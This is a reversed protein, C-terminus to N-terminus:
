PVEEVKIKQVETGDSWSGMEIERSSGVVQEMPEGSWAAECLRDFLRWFGLWDMADVEGHRMGTLKTVLDRRRENTETLPTGIEPHPSLPAAHDAILPTEGHEDTRMVVFRKRAPPVKELARYIDRGQRTDEFQDRDGEIILVMTTGPVQGLAELPMKEKGFWGPEVPMLASPAPLGAGAARAAIQPTLGGGFSHGLVAFRGLDPKVPGSARLRAIAAKTAALARDIKAANTDRMNKWKSPSEFIPYIVINGRRVIHDIWGGYDYPNLGRGGHLFLVVPAKDPAPSSPTFLWYGSEDEGVQEQRTKAHPYAGSGPGKEPRAPARVGSRAAPGGAKARPEVPKEAASCQIMLTGLMVATCAPVTLIRHSM